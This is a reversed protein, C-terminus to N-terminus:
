PIAGDGGLAAVAARVLPLAARYGSTVRTAQAALFLDPVEAHGPDPPAAALARRAVEGLTTGVTHERTIQAIVLASCTISKM